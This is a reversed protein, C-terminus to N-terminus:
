DTDAGPSQAESGSRLDATGRAFAAAGLLRNLVQGWDGSFTRYDDRNILRGHAFDNRLDVVGRVDPQWRAGLTMALIGAVYSDSEAAARAGQLLGSLSLDRVTPQRTAEGGHGMEVFNDSGLPLLPEMFKAMWRDGWHRSLLRPLAIRLDREIGPIFSVAEELVEENNLLSGRILQLLRTYLSTSSFDATIRYFLDVLADLDARQLEDLGLQVLERERDSLGASTVLEEVLDEAEPRFSGRVADVTDSEIATALNAIPLTMSRLGHSAFTAHVPDIATWMDIFSGSFVGKIMCVGLSGYGDYVSISGFGGAKMVRVIEDSNLGDLGGLGDGSRSLVLYVKIGPESAPVGFIIRPSELFRDFYDRAEVDRDWQDLADTEEIRRIPGHLGRISVPVTPDPGFAYHIGEAQFSLLEQPNCSSSRLARLFRRRSSETAWVRVLVDHYGYLAYISHSTISEARFLSNLQSIMSVHANADPARLLFYHLREGLAEHVKPHWVYRPGESTQLRRM